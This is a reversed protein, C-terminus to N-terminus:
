PIENLRAFEGFYEKAAINYAIAADIKNDFFGLHTPKYNKCLSAQWKKNQKAWSVGKYGSKNRKSLLANGVNNAHTAPRLNSIKNNARNCDEHDVEIPLYGHHMFFVIRHLLYNKKDIMVYVYGNKKNLSGAKRGVRTGKKAIKWTLIGDCHYEFIEKLYEPTISDYKSM